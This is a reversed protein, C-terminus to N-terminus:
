LLMAAGLAAAVAGVIAGSSAVLAGAANAGPSPLVSPKLTVQPTAPTTLIAASTALLSSSDSPLPSSASPLASSPAQTTVPPVTTTTTIKKTTTTKVTTTTTTFPKSKNEQYWAAKAAYQAQYLDTEDQPCASTALCMGSKTMYDTYKQTGREHAYSLSEIFYPSNPNDTFNPFMSKGADNLCKAVCPGNPKFPYDVAQASPVLAVAAVLAVIAFRM